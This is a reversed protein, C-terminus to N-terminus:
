RANGIADSAKTFSAKVNTGLTTITGIAVVAVLALILAYEVMGQGEGDRQLRDLMAKYNLDDRYPPTLSRDNTYAWQM